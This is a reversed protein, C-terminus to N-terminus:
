DIRDQCRDPVPHKDIHIKVPEATINDIWLLGFRRWDQRLKQGTERTGFWPNLVVQLYHDAGLLSHGPDRSPWLMIFVEHIRTQFEGPQVLDFLQEPM